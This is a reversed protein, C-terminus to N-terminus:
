QHKSWDVNMSRESGVSVRYRAIIVNRLPMSLYQRFVAAFAMDALSFAKIRERHRACPKLSGTGRRASCFANTTDFIM